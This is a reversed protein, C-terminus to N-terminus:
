AVRFLGARIWLNAGTANAIDVTFSGTVTVTVQTNATVTTVKTGTGKRSLLYLGVQGVVNVSNFTMVAVYYVAESLLVAAGGASAGVAVVDGSIKELNAAKQFTLNETFVNAAGLLAATGTAPVTLTYGAAGATLTLTESVTLTKGAAVALGRVDLVGSAISLTTGVKVHGLTGASAIVGEHTTLDSARAIGASLWDDDITGAAGALPVTGAAPTVAIPASEQSAFREIRRAEDRERAYSWTILRTM